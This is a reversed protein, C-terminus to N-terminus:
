EADTEQCIIDQWLLRKVGANFNYIEIRQQAFAIKERQVTWQVFLGPMNDVGLSKRFHLAACIQDIRGTAGNYFFGSEYVGQIRANEGSRRDIYKFVLGDARIMRKQGHRLHDGRGVRCPVALLGNFGKLAFGGQFCYVDQLAIRGIVSALGLIRRSRSFFFGRIQEARVAAAPPRCKRNSM